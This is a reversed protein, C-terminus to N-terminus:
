PVGVFRQQVRRVCRWGLRPAHRPAPKRHPPSTLASEFEALTLDGFVTLRSLAFRDEDAHSWRNGCASASDFGAERVMRRVAASHYGHPYAFSRISRGLGKEMQAKSDIIEKRSKARSVVDLQPHTASHAGLEVLTPDFGSLVDWGMIQRGVNLDNHSWPMFRGVYASPVYMTAPMDYRALLAAANEAFDDAGDDFTIALPKEPLTNHDIADVLASITLCTFGHRKILLLQEKFASVSVYWPRNAASASDGVSHYLLIPIATM